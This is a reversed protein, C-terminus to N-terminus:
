TPIRVQKLTGPLDNVWHLSLSSLVLDFQHKEFPLHEEDALLSHVNVVLVVLLSLDFISAVQLFSPCTYKV